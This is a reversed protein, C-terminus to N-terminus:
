SFFDDLENKKNVVSVSKQSFPDDEDNKELTTSSNFFDL